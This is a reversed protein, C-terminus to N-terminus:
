IIMCRSCSPRRRALGDHQFCAGEARHAMTSRDIAVGQCGLIQSQRYLPLHDALKSVVVDAVKAEAPLGGEILRAPAPAQIVGATDDAGTKECTRCAYKPRRTVIM